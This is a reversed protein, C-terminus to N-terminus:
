QGPTPSLAEAERRMKESEQSEGRRALYQGYQLVYFAKQQNSIAPASCAVDAANRYHIAAESFKGEGELTQALTLHSFV